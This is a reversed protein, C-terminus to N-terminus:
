KFLSLIVDLKLHALLYGLMFVAGVIIWKWKQLEELSHAVEPVVETPQFTPIVKHKDVFLLDIRATLDKGDEDIMTHYREATDHKLEHLSIMKCLNANMEQIKDVAETLKEQVKGHALIDREALAVCTKLDNYAISCEPLVQSESM